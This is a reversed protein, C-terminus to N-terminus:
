IQEAFTEGEQSARGYNMYLYALLALPILVLIDRQSLQGISQLAVLGAIIATFIKAFRRKQATFALGYWSVLKFLGKILQYLTATFLLFGIVLAFSPVEAPDTLGFFLSDLILLATIHWFQSRRLTQKMAKYLAFRQRYCFAGCCRKRPM